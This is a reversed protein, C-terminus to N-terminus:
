IAGAADEGALYGSTMAWSMGAGGPGYFESVWGSVHDGTVYMNGIAEGEPTVAQFSRNVSIGGQTSDMDRICYLVYYPGGGIAMLHQAPKLLHEDYGARCAANYREIGARLVDERCGIFEAAGGLTDTICLWGRKIESAFRGAFEEAGYPPDGAHADSWIREIGEKDYIEYLVKGPSRNTLEQADRFKSEDMVRRGHKNVIYSRPDIGVPFLKSFRGGAYTPGLLHINMSVETEAGLEAAMAIGDGVCTRVGGIRLDDGKVFYKPLYRALSEHSGGVGGCSLILRKSNFVLNKGEADSRAAVGSVNGEADTLLKVARAQMFFRVKGSRRCQEILKDCIVAGLRAAGTGDDHLEVNRSCDSKFPGANAPVPEWEIGRGELWRAITKTNYLYRKIIEPNGTNHLTDMTNRYLKEANADTSYDGYDSFDSSIFTRALRGNGGLIKGAEIVAISGDTIESAHAAACLGSIGGGVVVIDFSYAENM